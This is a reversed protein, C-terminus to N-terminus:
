DLLIWYLALDTNKKRFEFSWWINSRIRKDILYDPFGNDLLLEAAKNWNNSWNNDSAFEKRIKTLTRPQSDLCAYTKNDIKKLSFKKFGFKKYKQYIRKILKLYDIYWDGSFEIDNVIFLDISCQKKGEPKAKREGKDYLEKERQYKEEDYHRIYPYKRSKRPIIRFGLFGGNKRCSPCYQVKM